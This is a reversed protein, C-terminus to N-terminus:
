KHAELIRLRAFSSGEGLFLMRAVPNERLALTVLLGTVLMLILHILLDLGMMQPSFPIIFMGIVWGLRHFLYIGFSPRGLMALWSVTGGWFFLASTLLLSGLDGLLSGQSFDLGYGFFYDMQFLGMFLFALAIVFGRCAGWKELINFRGYGLGLLFTPLLFQVGDM